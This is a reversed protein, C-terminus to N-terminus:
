IEFYVTKTTKKKKNYNIIILLMASKLAISSLLVNAGLIEWTCIKKFSQSSTSFSLVIDFVYRMVSWQM